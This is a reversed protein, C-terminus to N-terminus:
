PVCTHHNIQAIALLLLPTIPTAHFSLLRFSILEHSQSIGPAADFICPLFHTTLKEQPAPNDAVDSACYSFSAASAMIAAPLTITAAAPFAQFPSEAFPPHCSAFLFGGHL